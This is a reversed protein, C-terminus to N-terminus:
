EVTVIHTYLYLLCSKRTMRCDSHTYLYLLFSTRTMRCDSHTCLYLLCSTRTMRCDCHTYLYLLCSTRTMRCDCHTYLYLLCSTRTMRCDSHTCVCVCSVLPVVTSAVTPFKISCAHLTKVLAQRYGALDGGESGGETASGGNSTNAVEKKLVLVVQLSLLSPSPPPPSLSPHSPPLPPHSLPLPPLSPSSPPHTLLLQLQTIVLLVVSPITPPSVIAIIFQCM